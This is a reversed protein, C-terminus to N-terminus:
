YCKKILFLSNHVNWASGTHEFCALTLLHSISQCIRIRSNCFNNICHFLKDLLSFKNTWVLFSVINTIQNKNLTRSLHTLILRYWWASIPHRFNTQSSNSFYLLTQEVIIRSSVQYYVGATWSVYCSTHMQKFALIELMETNNKRSPKLCSNRWLVVLLQALIHSAPKSPEEGLFYM